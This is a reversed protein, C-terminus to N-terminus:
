VRRQGSLGHAGEAAVKKERAEWACTHTHTQYM